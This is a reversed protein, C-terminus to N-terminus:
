PGGKEHGGRGPNLGYTVIKKHLNTRDIGLLRAAGSVNGGSQNLAESILSKEFEQRAAVLGGVAQVAKLDLCPKVEDSASKAPTVFSAPSASSESVGCNKLDQVTICSGASLIALREVVNGLERINGSWPLSQLHLLSEDAFSRQSLGNEDLYIALFHEALLSIDSSRERLPPLHMPVVNLRFFLDERFQGSAVEAELDKNTAALIRM